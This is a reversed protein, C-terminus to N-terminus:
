FCTTAILHTAPQCKEIIFNWFLISVAKFSKSSKSSKSPISFAEASVISVHWSISLYSSGLFRHQQQWVYFGMRYQSRGLQIKVMFSLTRVSNLTSILRNPCHRTLKLSSMLVILQLFGSTVLARTGLRIKLSSFNVWHASLIWLSILDRLLSYRGHREQRGLLFSTLEFEPAM